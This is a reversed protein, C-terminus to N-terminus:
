GMVGITAVDSWQGVQEDNLRYIAKYKWVASTGAAPLAATDLYDPVTDITLFAFVGTGRDVWIELSDMGSKSWGVNPHGAQLTLELIPKATTPDVSQEAGIIGLDQGIAETYAPHKKIRAALASVRSFIGAPVATPPVGLAPTTPMTGITNGSRLATKYATWDRTTKSHQNQAGVVFAFYADDATTQTVEAATVGVTAAYTPLKAAFNNLWKLKGPEDAPLFYSKAM